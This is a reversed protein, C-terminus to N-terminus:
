SNLENNLIQQQKLVETFATVQVEWTSNDDSVIYFKLKRGSASFNGLYVNQSQLYTNGSGSNIVIDNGVALNSQIYFNNPLTSNVM